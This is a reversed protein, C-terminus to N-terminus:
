PQKHNDSICREARRSIVQTKEVTKAPQAFGQGVSEEVEIGEVHFFVFVVLDIVNIKIKM